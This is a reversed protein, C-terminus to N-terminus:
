FNRYVISPNNELITTEPKRNAMEQKLSKKIHGYNVTYVTRSPQNVTCRLIVKTQDGFQHVLNKNM